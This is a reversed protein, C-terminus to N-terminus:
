SIRWQDGYASGITYSNQYSGRYVARKLINGRWIRTLHYELMEQYPDCGPGVSHYHFRVHRSNNYYDLPGLRVPYAGFLKIGLFEEMKKPAGDRFCKGCMMYTKYRNGVDFKGHCPAEDYKELCIPCKDADIRGALLEDCIPHVRYVLYDEVLLALDKIGGLVSTVESLM